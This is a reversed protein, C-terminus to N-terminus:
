LQIMFKCVSSGKLVTEIVDIKVEKGLVEEWINKFFGAGCYCYDESYTQKNERIQKKVRGCHCYFYRKEQIDGTSFYDSPNKPMKMLILTNNELIGAFGFKNEIIKERFPEDVIDLEFQDQLMKHVLKIDKTESFTSKIKKLKEKPYRCSCESYIQKRQKEPVITELKLISEYEFEIYKKEDSLNAPKGEMVFNVIEPTAHNELSNKFKNVWDKHLNLKEKDLEYDIRETLL